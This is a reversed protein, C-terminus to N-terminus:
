FDNALWIILFLFSSISEGNVTKVAKHFGTVDFISLVSFQWTKCRIFAFGTGVLIFYRKIECDCYSSLGSINKKRYFCVTIAIENLAIKEIYPVWQFNKQQQYITKYLNVNNTKFFIGSDGILVFCHELKTVCQRKLCVTNFILCWNVLSSIM